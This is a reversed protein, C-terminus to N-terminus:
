VRVREFVRESSPNGADDLLNFTLVPTVGDDDYFVMQNNVIRWRGTEVKKVISMDSQVLSLVSDRAIDRVILDEAVRATIGGSDTVVYEVVYQGVSLASPSWEYRWTNTSGVRSMSTVALLDTESGGSVVYVRVTAGSIDMNASGDAKIAFCQFVVEGQNMAGLIM